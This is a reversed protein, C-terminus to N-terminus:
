INLNKKGITIFFGPFYQYKKIKEVGYNYWKKEQKVIDSISKIKQFKNLSTKYVKYNNEIFIPLIESLSHQTEHPHLVQDRFWSYIKKEDKIKHFKKYEYFKDEDSKEDLNKFYDLFPKRGYKHYLGLFIHSKLSGFSMIYNLAALCNNTHHLVGLSIILDYKEESEYTFLDSVVFTSKVKLRSKIEEAYEIVVPNFDVGIIEINDALHYALSNVLWGSGCGFEIIKVKNKSSFINRLQPYIELPNNNKIQEIELNINKNVNFPLLKYFEYVKNNKYSM